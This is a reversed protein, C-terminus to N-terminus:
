ELINTTVFDLGFVRALEMHEPNNLTWVNIKRGGERLAKVKEATVCNGNLDADLRNEIMFAIDEESCVSSLFQADADPYKERIALLNLKSFSIFTTHAYWAEKKVIEVIKWVNERAMQNKLELIAQKGYQRCVRLYEELTPLCLDERPNGNLDTLRLSRLYEFTCAEVNEKKGLLRELTDDHYIIFKGDATTHIDTEIGYYSRNGAAVFAALTNERELGSVGRHAIMKTKGKEVKITDNMM